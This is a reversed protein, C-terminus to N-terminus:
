LQERIKTLRKIENTLARKEQSKIGNDIMVEFMRLAIVEEKTGTIIPAGLLFYTMSLPAAKLEEIKINRHLKAEIEDAGVTEGGKYLSLWLDTDIMPAYSEYMYVIYKLEKRWYISNLAKYRLYNYYEKNEKKGGDKIRHKKIYETIFKKDNNASKNFNDVASKFKRLDPNDQERVIEELARNEHEKVDKAQQEMDFAKLVDYLYNYKDCAFNLKESIAQRM